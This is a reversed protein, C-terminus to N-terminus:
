FRSAASELKAVPIIYKGEDMRGEIKIPYCGGLGKELKYLSFNMNCYRCTVSNSNEEYRYGQKHPYCSACADLFALVKNDLRLVFFSINKGQSRYTYFQPIDQKLSAISITVDKGAVSPSPYVPQHTCASFITLVTLVLFLHMQKM